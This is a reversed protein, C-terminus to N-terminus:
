SLAEDEASKKRAMEKEEEAKQRMDRLLMEHHVHLIFGINVLLAVIITTVPGDWASVPKQGSAAVLRLLMLAIDLRLIAFALMRISVKPIAYAYLFAVIFPAFACAVYVNLPVTVIFKLFSDM